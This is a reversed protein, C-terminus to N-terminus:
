PTCPPMESLGLHLSPQALDVAPQDLPTSAPRKSQWAVEETAEAVAYNRGVQAMDVADDLAKMRARQELWVKQKAIADEKRRLRIARLAANSARRRANTADKKAAAASAIATATAATSTAAAVTAADM